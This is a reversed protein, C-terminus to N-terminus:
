ASKITLNGFKNGNLGVTAHVARPVSGVPFRYPKLAIVWGRVQSADSEQAENLCDVQGHSGFKNRQSSVNVPEGNVLSM